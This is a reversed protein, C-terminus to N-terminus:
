SAEKLKYIVIFIISGGVACIMDDITDYLGIDIYGDIVDTVAAVVVVLASQWYWKNLFIYVYTM